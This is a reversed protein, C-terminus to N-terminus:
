EKSIVEDLNLIVSCVSAFAALQISDYKDDVVSHGVALYESADDPSEEFHELYSTLSSRLVVLEEDNPLRCTASRFAFQLQSDPTSANDLSRMALHRAAEVYTPDNLLALAQQPTNTRSRGVACMEWSPADFTSMTPHPVTRKRYIYLSRRYLNEDTAQEYPPERAGGALEDWLGEPQYPKISPGGIEPNLLGSIAM